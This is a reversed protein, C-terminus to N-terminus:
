FKRIKLKWEKENIKDVGLVEGLEQAKVSRPINEAAPPFDVIVELIQNSKLEELNLKTLVFTLPCIEGKLDLTKTTSSAM